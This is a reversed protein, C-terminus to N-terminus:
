HASIKYFGNDITSGIFLKSNIQILTSDQGSTPSFGTTTNNIKNWIWKSSQTNVKYFGEDRTAVILSHDGINLMSSYYASLFTFNSINGIPEWKWVATSVNLKYFGSEHTGVLFTNANVKISRAMLGPSWSVDPANNNTLATWKWVSSSTDLAFFPRQTLEPNNWDIGTGVLFKNPSIQTVTSGRGSFLTLNSSQEQTWKWVSSSTDLKYFGQDSTGVIFKNNSIKTISSWYSSKNQLKTGKTNIKSWKWVSNSIDVRYFGQTHNNQYFGSNGTGVLLTTSNIKAISSFTGIDNDDNLGKINLNQHTWVWTKQSIDVKYFGQTHTGILLTNDDVKFISSKKGVSLDTGQKTANLNSSSNTILEHTFTLKNTKPTANQTSCSSLTVISSTILAFSGLITLIKKM